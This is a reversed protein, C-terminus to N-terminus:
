KLNEQGAIDDIFVVLFFGVFVLFLVVSARIAYKRYHKGKETLLSPDGNPWPYWWTDWWSVGARRHYIFVWESYGGVLLVAIMWGIGILLSPPM